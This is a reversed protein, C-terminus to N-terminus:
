LSVNCQTNYIWKGGWANRWLAIGVSKGECELDFVGVWEGIVFLRRRGWLSV